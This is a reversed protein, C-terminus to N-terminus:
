TGRQEVAENMGLRRMRRWLTARDVGLLKAARGRHWGSRELAERVEAVEPSEDAVPTRAFSAVTATEEIIERPLDELMVSPGRSKVVGHEIANRLERINGPWRYDLLARMADPSLTERTKGILSSIERLFLGALQPIDERRERLSPVHM